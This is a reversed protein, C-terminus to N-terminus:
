GLEPWLESHYKDDISLLGVDDGDDVLPVIEQVAYRSVLARAREKGVKIIMSLHRSLHHRISSAHTDVSFGGDLYIRTDCSFQAKTPTMDVLFILHPAPVIIRALHGRRDVAMSLMENGLGTLKLAYVADEEPGNTGFFAVRALPKQEEWRRRTEQPNKM